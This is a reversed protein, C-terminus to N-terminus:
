WRSKNKIFDMITKHLEFTCEKCAENLTISNPIKDGYGKIILQISFDNETKSQMIKRCCDCKIVEEKM